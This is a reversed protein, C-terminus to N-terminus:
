RIYLTCCCVSCTVDGPHDIYLRGCRALSWVDYHLITFDTRFESDGAWWYSYPIQGYSPNYRNHTACRTVVRRLNFVDDDRCTVVRRLNFVDDDHCTVVRRLIFVDDNHCTVVRRLTFVDDGYRTVVHRLNFVDDGYRTVVRRLTFVDDGYRTIVRRLTFVDDGRCACVCTV